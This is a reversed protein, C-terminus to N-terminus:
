THKEMEVRVLACITETNTELGLADRLTDLADILWHYEDKQMVLVIQRLSTANYQKELREAPGWTTEETATLMSIDRGEVDSALRNLDDTDYGVGDLGDEADALYSLESFLKETDWGGLETNRNDAIVYARLENENKFALGRIVPVLWEGSDGLRVRQPPKEGGAHKQALTELRGHGVALKGTNEDITPPATYGFRDVSTHLNGIDHDKPNEPVFRALLEDLAMYEIRLADEQQQDPTKTM